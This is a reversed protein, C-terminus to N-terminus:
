VCHGRGKSQDRQLGHDADGGGSLDRGHSGQRYILHPKFGKFPRPVQVKPDKSFEETKERVM